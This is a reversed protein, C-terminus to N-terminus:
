QRFVDSVASADKNENYSIWFVDFTEDYTSVSVLRFSILGHTKEYMEVSVLRCPTSKINKKIRRKGM